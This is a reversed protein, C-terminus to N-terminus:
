QDTGEVGVLVGRKRKGANMTGVHQFFFRQHAALCAEKAGETNVCEGREVRNKGTLEM